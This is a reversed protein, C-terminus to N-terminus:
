LRSRLLPADNPRTLENILLRTESGIKSDNILGFRTQLAFLKVSLDRDFEPETTSNLQPLSLIELAADLHKRSEIVLSGFDGEQLIENSNSSPRWFIVGDGTWLQKLDSLPVQRAFEGVLINALEGDISKLVIRHLQEADKLVLIAPRNFRLFQDWRRVSLCSLNMAILEYCASKIMIDPFQEGWITALTRFATIRSTKDAMTSLIRPLENSYGQAPESKVNLVEDLQSVAASQQEEISDVQEYVVDSKSVSRASSNSELTAEPYSTVSPDNAGVDDISAPVPQTQSVGYMLGLITLGFLVVGAIIWKARGLVDMMASTRASGLMFVDGAAAKVTKSDVLKASNVYAGLLAQNALVNIKRPIGGTLQALRNLAQRSFLPQKCGAVGLRFNVYHEIESKPLAGLHYRATIRQSLQRLDERQLFVNLEPQGILIIQLLKAKNTELNTLLRIQELVSRSLLQAEDIILVTHRGDSFTSILHEYISDVLQKQSLKSDSSIGLEDCISQLLELENINSNLLLAVDVNDPLNGLLNRCLTTKGTGVEGTLVIFCGGQTLGYFLHAMAEKHRQSMYLYQPDPAISFPTETLGFYQEYVPKFTSNSKVYM